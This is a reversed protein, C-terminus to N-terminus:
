KVTFEGEGIRFGECYVEISYRGQSFRQGGRGYIFDVQQRSNDFNFRQMATYIMGEGNYTFEGSGTALDSVVAGSPDLVRMYLVKEEQKALGNPAIRVSIRVKDIRRAKYSGGDSEKGRSNIANVTINEARLAAAITVKESLEQNKSAVAVVSDSLTQKEAKLSNNEQSLSENQQSLVGNEEKLRAIELDKQALIAQYNRIKQDYKKRDFSNVNRLERKDVELQAKVKMLSDVSGGLQQIEAIKADLQASISDLKTKASLVEETKAAITADKTKNDQREQYYFYLLLINLAALVLLAALLYSRSNNRSQPRPEM